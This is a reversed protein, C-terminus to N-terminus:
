FKHAYRGAVMSHYANSTSDYLGSYLLYFILSRKKIHCELVRVEGSTAHHPSEKVREVAAKMSEEAVDTVVQQYLKNLYVSHVHIVYLLIYFVIM